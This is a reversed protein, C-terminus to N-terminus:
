DNSVKPCQTYEKLNEVFRTDIDYVDKMYQPFVTNICHDMERFAPGKDYSSGEKLPHYMQQSHIVVANEQTIETLVKDFGWAM